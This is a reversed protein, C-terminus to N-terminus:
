LRMVWFGSEKVDVGQKKYFLVAAEEDGAIPAFEGVLSTAGHQRAIEKARRLLDSGAGKERELPTVWISELEPPRVGLNLIASGVLKGDVRMEIEVRSKKRPLEDIRKGM